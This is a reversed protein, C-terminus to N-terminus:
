CLSEWGGKADQQAMLSAPALVTLCCTTLLLRKM